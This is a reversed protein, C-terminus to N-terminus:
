TTWNIYRAGSWPPPSAKSSIRISRESPRIVNQQQGTSRFRKALKINRSIGLPEECRRLIDISRDWLDGSLERRLETYTINGFLPFNEGGTSHPFATSRYQRPLSKDESDRIM